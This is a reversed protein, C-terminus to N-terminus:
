LSCYWQLNSCLLVRELQITDYVIGFYFFVLGRVRSRLYLPM